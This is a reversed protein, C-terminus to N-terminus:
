KPTPLRYYYSFISYDILDVRGDKNIDARDFGPAGTDHYKSMLCSFDSLDINGDPDGNPLGCIDAKYKEPPVVTYEITQLNNYENMEGIENDRDIWLSIRNVGTNLEVNTVAMVGTSAGIGLGPYSFYKLDPTSTTIPETANLYVYIKFNKDFKGGVNKVKFEIDYRDAMVGYNKVVRFDESILNPLDVPSPTVIPEPITANFEVRLLNNGEDSETVANDKDIWAYLVNNEKTFTYSYQDVSSTNENDGSALGAFRWDREPISEDIDASPPDISENVYFFVEHYGAEAGQNEAIVNINYVGVTDTPTVEIRDISLDPLLRTQVITYSILSRGYSFYNVTTDISGNTLGFAVSSPAQEDHFTQVQLNSGTSHPSAPIFSITGIEVATKSALGSESNGSITIVYETDTTTINAKVREKENTGDGMDDYITDLNLNKANERQSDSTTFIPDGAVQNKPINVSFQFSGITKIGDTYSNLDIMFSEKEGATASVSELPDTSRLSASFTPQTDTYKLSYSKAPRELIDEYEPIGDPKNPNTLIMSESENVSLSITGASKTKFKLTAIKELGHHYGTEVDTTTFLSGLDKGIVLVKIKPDSVGDREIFASQVTFSQSFESPEILLNDINDSGIITASYQIGYIDPGLTGAFIDIESEGEILGQRAVYDFEGIYQAFAESRDDQSNQLPRYVVYITLFIAILFLLSGILFPKKNHM